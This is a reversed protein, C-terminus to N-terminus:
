VRIQIYSVLNFTTAPSHPADGVSLEDNARITKIADSDQICHYRSVWGLAQSIKFLNVSDTVVIVSDPFKWPLAGICGSIVPRCVSSGNRTM